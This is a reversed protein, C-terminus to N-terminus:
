CFWSSCLFIRQFAYLNKKEIWQAISLFLPSKLEGLAIASEPWLERIDLIM